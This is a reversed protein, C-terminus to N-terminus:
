GSQRRSKGWIQPEELLLNRFPEHQKFRYAHFDRQDTSLIRGHSLHEALIVLSADALDMPLRAYKKMLSAIRPAHERELEFVEFAGESYSHIFKRQSEPGVRHLLLHCTETVVPWTTVLGEDLAELWATARAHHKDRRSALALWFGTDALIM